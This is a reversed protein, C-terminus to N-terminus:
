NTFRLTFLDTVGWVCGTTDANFGTPYHLRFSVRSYGAAQEAVKARNLFEDITFASTKIWKSSDGTGGARTVRLYLNYFREGQEDQEAPRDPDYSLDFLDQQDAQHNTHETQLFFRGEIYLSKKFDLTVMRENPLIGSTDTLTAKLPWVGITDYRTIEAEYVGGGLDNAFNTKFDIACCDGDRVDTRGEFDASSVRFIGGQADTTYICRSPTDRVVGVRHYNISGSGDGMCATLALAAM